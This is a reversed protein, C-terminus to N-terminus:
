IHILSLGRVVWVDTGGSSHIESLRGLPEGSRTQVDVGLLDHHYWSGEEPEPMADRAVVIEKGVLARAGEVTRVDDVRALIRKGAGPRIAVNAFSRQGAQDVLVVGTGGELLDSARNYLYLRVEGKLGFM